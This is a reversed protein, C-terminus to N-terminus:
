ELREYDAQVGRFEDDTPAVRYAVLRWGMTKMVSEAAEANLSATLLSRSWATVQLLIIVYESDYDNIVPAAIPDILISDDPLNNLNDGDIARTGRIFTPAVTALANRIAPLYQVPNSTSM